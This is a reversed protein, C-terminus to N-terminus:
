IMKLYVHVVLYSFYFFVMFSIGFKQFATLNEWEDKSKNILKGSEDHSGYLFRFIGRFTFYLGLVAANTAGIVIAMALALPQIFAIDYSGASMDFFQLTIGLLWFGMFALPVSWIGDYQQLFHKIKKM